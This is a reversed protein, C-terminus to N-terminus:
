SLEMITSNRFTYPLTARCNQSKSTLVKMEQWRYINPSDVLLLVQRKAGCPKHMDSTDEGLVEQDACCPKHQDYQRTTQLNTRKEHGGSIGSMRWFNELTKEHGGSTGSM